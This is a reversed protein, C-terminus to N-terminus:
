VAKGVRAFRCRAAQGYSQAFGEVGGTAQPKAPAAVNHFVACGTLTFHVGALGAVHGQGGDVQAAFVMVTIVQAVAVAHQPRDEMVPQVQGVKVRTKNGPVAPHVLQKRALQHRQQLGVVDEPDM